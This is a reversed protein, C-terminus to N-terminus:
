LEYCRAGVPFCRANRGHLHEQGDIKFGNQPCLSHFILVKKYFFSTVLIKLSIRAQLIQLVKQKTLSGIEAKCFAKAAALRGKGNSSKGATCHATFMISGLVLTFENDFRSRPRFRFSAFSRKRRERSVQTGRNQQSEALQSIWDEMLQTGLDEMLQTGLDEGAAGDREMRTDWDINRDSYLVGLSVDKDQRGEGRAMGERGVLGQRDEINKRDGRFGMGGKGDTAVMNEWGVMDEIRKRKKRNVMGQKDVRAERGEYKDRDVMGQKAMRGERGEYYLRGERGEYYLRGERAEM